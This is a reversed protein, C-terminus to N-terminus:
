RPSPRGVPLPDMSRPRTAPTVEIDSRPSLMSKNLLRSALACANPFCGKILPPDRCRARRAHPILWAPMHRTHPGFSVRRTNALHFTMRLYLVEFLDHAGAASPTKPNYQCGVDLNVLRPTLIEPNWITRVHSPPSPSTVPRNTAGCIRSLNIEIFVTHSTLLIKVPM